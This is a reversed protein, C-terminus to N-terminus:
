ASGHLGCGSRRVEPDYVLSSMDVGCIVCKWDFSDKMEVSAKLLTGLDSCGLHTCEKGRM